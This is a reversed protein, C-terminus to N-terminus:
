QGPPKPAVPPPAAAQGKGVIQIFIENQKIM